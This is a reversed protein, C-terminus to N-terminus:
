GGGAAAGLPQPERVIVLVDELNNFEVAPRVRITRYLGTGREAVEVTGIVFGKPYIGDIGSTVVADGVQVDDLNSVYEMRLTGDDHGTVLGAVRNREILAGAAANRDVLLQVRAARPGPDRVVRGVVGDPSVVASDHRVGDGLGRDVTVTRFYPTADGAIVRAGVTSFTVGRRMELLEELGRARRALARERQVQLQLAAVERRLADNEKEVSVLGVYNHWLGAVGDVSGSVVRQVESFVGFTVGEIVRVGSATNVQLSILLLHGSVVAALWAGTRRHIDIM